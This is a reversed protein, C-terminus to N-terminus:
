FADYWEKKQASAQSLLQRNTFFEMKNIQGLNIREVISNISQLGLAFIIRLMQYMKNM